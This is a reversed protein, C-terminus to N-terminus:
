TETAPWNIARSKGQPFGLSFVGSFKLARQTRSNAETSHQRKNHIIQTSIQTKPHRGAQLRVNDITKLSM